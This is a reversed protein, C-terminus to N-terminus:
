TRLKGGFPKAAQRAFGQKRVLFPIPRTPLLRFLFGRFLSPSVARLIKRWQFHNEPIHIHNEPIHIQKGGMHIYNEPVHIYKEGVHIHNEPIHIQKEEVHHFDM